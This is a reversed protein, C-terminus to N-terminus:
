ICQLMLLSVRAMRVLNWLDEAKNAPILYGMMVDQQFQFIDIISLNEIPVLSRIKDILCQLHICNIDFIVKKFM